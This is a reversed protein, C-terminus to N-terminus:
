YPVPKPTLKVNDYDFDEELAFPRVEDDCPVDAAADEPGEVAAEAARMVERSLRCNATRTPTQLAALLAADEPSLEEDGEDPPAAEEAVFNPLELQRPMGESAEDPAAPDVQQLLDQGVAIGGHPATPKAPPPAEPGGGPAGEAADVVRQLEKLALAAHTFHVGTGPAEDDGDPLQLEGFELEEDDGVAECEEEDSLLLAPDEAPLLGPDPTRPAAVAAPGVAPETPVMPTLVRPTTASRVSRPTSCTSPVYDVVDEDVYSDVRVDVNVLPARPSTDDSADLEVLEEEEIEDCPPMTYKKRALIEQIHPPYETVPTPAEAPAQPDTPPEASGSGRAIPSPGADGTTPPSTKSPTLVVRGDANLHRFQRLFDEETEEVANVTNDLCGMVMDDLSPVMMDSRTKASADDAATQSGTM